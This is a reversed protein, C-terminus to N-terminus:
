KMSTYGFLIISSGRPVSNGLSSTATPVARVIISSMRSPLPGPCGRGIMMTLFSAPSIM